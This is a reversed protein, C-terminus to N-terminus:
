GGFRSGFFVGYAVLSLLDVSGGGSDLVTDLWRMWAGFIRCSSFFSFFPGQLVRFLRSMGVAVVERGHWPELRLCLCAPTSDGWSCSRLQLKMQSLVLPMVAFLSFGHLLLSWFLSLPLLSTSGAGACASVRRGTAPAFCHIQNSERPYPPHCVFM